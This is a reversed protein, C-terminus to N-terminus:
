QRRAPPEAPPQYSVARLESHIKWTNDSRDKVWVIMGNGSQPPLRRGSRDVVDTSYRFTSIATRRELVQIVPQAPVFNLYQIGGYFDRISRDAAEWGEARAGGAWIVTLQPVQQYFMAISDLKANNQAKVWATLRQQLADGEMLMERQTIERACGVAASGALLLVIASRLM